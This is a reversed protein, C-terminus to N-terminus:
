CKWLSHQKVIARNFLISRWFHLLNKTTAFSHQQWLNRSFVLECDTSYWLPPLTSECNVSGSIGIHLIYLFVKGVNVYFQYQGKLTGGLRTILMYNYALKQVHIYSDILQNGTFSKVQYQKEAQHCWPHDVSYQVELNTSIKWKNM